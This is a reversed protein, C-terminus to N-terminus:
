KDNSKDGDNIKIDRGSQYNTSKDGTRIKQAINSGSKSKFLGNVIAVVIIGVGGTGLLSPWNEKLWEFM